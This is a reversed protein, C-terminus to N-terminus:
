THLYLTSLTFLTATSIRLNIQRQVYIVAVSM